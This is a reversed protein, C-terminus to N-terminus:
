RGDQQDEEDPRASQAAPPQWLRLILRALALTVRSQAPAPLADWVEGPPTGSEEEFLRRQGMRAVERHLRYWPVRVGFLVGASWVISFTM